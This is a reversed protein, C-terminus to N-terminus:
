LAHQKLYSTIAQMGACTWKHTNRKWKDNYKFLYVHGTALFEGFIHYKKGYIKIQNEGIFEFELNLENLLSEVEQKRKEPSCQFKLSM